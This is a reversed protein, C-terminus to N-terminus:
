KFILTGAFQEVKEARTLDLTQARETLVNTFAFLNRGGYSTMAQDIDRFFIDAERKGSNTELRFREIMREVDEDTMPKDHAEELRTRVTDILQPLEEAMKVLSQHLQDISVVSHATHRKKFITGSKKGFFMGNSCRARFVFFELHVSHQGVDSSLLRIGMYHPDNRVNLHTQSILRINTRETNLYGRDIMFKIGSDALGRQLAPLVESMDMPRYMDSLMARVVGDYTRIFFVDEHAHSDLWSEFNELFLTFKKHKLMNSAYQMPIKMRNCFQQLAWETLRYEEGRILLRVKDDVITPRLQQGLVIMDKSQEQIHQARTIFRDLASVHRQFHQADIQMLHPSPTFLRIVHENTKEIGGDTTTFPAPHLTIM